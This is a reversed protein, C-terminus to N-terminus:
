GNAEGLELRSFNSIVINEGLKAILAQLIDGITQSPDKISPQKLLCAEQYYKKLKGTVIKEVVKPDQSQGKAEKTYEAKLEKIVKAPVDDPELYRPRMSAVQMAIDHAFTKFEDTKAVFDTECNVAVLSGVRGLHSYANILGAATARDARKAAKAQGKQKLIDLARPQNGKAQELAAKVDMVGAGTQERITKILSPDLKM